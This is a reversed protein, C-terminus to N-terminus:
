SVDEVGNVPPEVNLMGTLNILMALTLHDGAIMQALHIPLSNVTTQIISLCRMDKVGRTLYVYLDVITLTKLIIM